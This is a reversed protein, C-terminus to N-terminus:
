NRGRPGLTPGPPDDGARIKTKIRLRVVRPEQEDQRGGMTVSGDKRNKDDEV